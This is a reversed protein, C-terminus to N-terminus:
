KVERWEWNMLACLDRLYEVTDNMVAIGIDPNVLHEAFENLLECNFDDCSSLYSLLLKLDEGNIDINSRIITFGHSKAEFYIM